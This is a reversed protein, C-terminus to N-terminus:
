FVGLRWRLVLNKLLDTEKLCFLYVPISFYEHRQDDSWNTLSGDPLMVLGNAGAFPTEFIPACFERDLGSRQVIMYEDLFENIECNKKLPFFAVEIGYVPSTYTSGAVSIIDGLFNSFKTDHKENWDGALSVSHRRTCHDNLFHAAYESIVLIDRTFM